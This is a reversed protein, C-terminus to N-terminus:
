RDIREPERAPPAHARAACAYMVRVSSYSSGSRSVATWVSASGCAKMPLVVRAVVPVCRVQELPCVAAQIWTRVDRERTAEFRFVLDCESAREGLFERRIFPQRVGQGNVGAVVAVSPFVIRMCM